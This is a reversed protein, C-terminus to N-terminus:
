RLNKVHVEILEFLYDHHKEPVQHFLDLLKQEKESISEKAMNENGVLESQTIGLVAVLANMTELRPFGRGALWDSITSPQVGVRRALEAKTMGARNLYRELNSAFLVRSNKESKNKEM